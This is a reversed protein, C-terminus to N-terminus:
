LSAAMQNGGVRIRRGADDYDALRAMHFPDEDAAPHAFAAAPKDADIDIMKLIQSLSRVVM